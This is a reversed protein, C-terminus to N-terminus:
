PQEWWWPPQRRQRWTRLVFDRAWLWQMRRWELPPLAGGRGQSRLWDLLEGVPAFWGPRRALAELRERTLPHVDENFVYGKGFHTSLVCIGGERELRDQNETSLLENFEVRSEADATSFWWRVAPRRSDHYPMSPNVRLLNLVGFTLNRAYHLHDICWDGWYYESGPVAGEYHSAAQDSLRRYLMRLIPDDLRDIGWYLNERNRAHNAHVRPYAGFLEQFQAFAALTRERKSSHMTAGHSAIEFGRRHLDVVFACYSPDELTQSSAFDGGGELCAVPWATKTTRMGLAELLRYVPAVNEVTAVDTDDLITFAFRKGNPFQLPASTM